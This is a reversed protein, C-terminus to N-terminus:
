YKSARRRAESAAGRCRCDADPAVVAMSYSQRTPVDMQSLLHRALLIAVASGM